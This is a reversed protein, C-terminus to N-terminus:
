LKELYAQTSQCRAQIRAADYGRVIPHNVDTVIRTTRKCPKLSHYFQIDECKQNAKLAAQVASEIKRGNAAAIATNSDELATSWLKLDNFESDTCERLGTLPIETLTASGNSGNSSPAQSDKPDEAKPAPVPATGSVDKSKACGLITLISAAAFVVFVSM